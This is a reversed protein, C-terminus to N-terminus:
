GKEAIQTKLDDVEAKLEKIAEILVPIIKEHKVTLYEEDFPAPVAADPIVAQVEQAIVGTEHQMTPMFGKDECDDKWDFTVGRLKCVKDLANPITEINEKLREDSAYATVNGRFQWDNNSYANRATWSYTGSAVRFLAIYDAGAGTSVPNNDGNYEIGGGHNDDQSVMVMATAQSAGRAWIKATGTGSGRVSLTTSAGKNIDLNGTMTDDADSRVFSSAQLGDVTDADLGSGSGDNGSTWVTNGYSTITSNSNTLQLPYTGDWSGNDDRDTLIYFNNSNIHIWFDDADTDNFKMQPSTGSITLQGTMTDATDSRLFSSAQVGDVTDADLGSGSGDNGANWVTNGNVKVADNGANGPQFNIQTILATGGQGIYIVDSAKGILKRLYGGDKTYIYDGEDIVLPATATDTGANYSGGQLYLGSSSTDFTDGRLYGESIREVEVSQIVTEGGGQYNTIYYLDFYKGEPDFKTAHGSSTTNYGSFDASYTYVQGATLSQNAAVGYNYSNATDSALNSFNENLTQVAFYFKGSGSSTSIHKVRVTIRYTANPDIPLRCPIPGSTSGFSVGQHTASYGNNAGSILDSWDNNGLYFRGTTNFDPYKQGGATINRAVYLDGDTNLTMSRTTNKVFQLNGGSNTSLNDPSEYIKWINGGNWQIGENPGPDNFTLHNVNQINFNSMNLNANAPNRAFSSAHSGDVTDADLGSGSGDNGAHWITNGSLYLQGSTGGDLRVRYDETSGDSAHFDIYRGVEMVGQTNVAPIIGWRNGSSGEAQYGDLLDADLGSGSGDNAAHWVKYKNAGKSWGGVALDNTTGDLGFYLAYDGAIHFQMFADANATGQYVQLSAQNGSATAIASNSPFTIQNTYSSVSDHADSRLFSSAQIGDVTDADLGSGSGDNNSDWFKAWSYWSSGGWNTRYHVGNGNSGTHPVYYQFKMSGSYYNWLGGYGYSGPPANTWSAGNHIEKWNHHSSTVANSFITDWNTSTNIIGTYAGLQDADKGDLKDADLGSGSGDVTKIATLIQAATQDATAGTEIGNLKTHDADTFVNSDTASEVLTRIEAATQDATAGAEIGDLKTGDTAVDRGDVNGSVTIDGNVSIGTNSTDLKSFNSYYLSVAGNTVGRMMYTGNTSQVTLDNVKLRLDGTGVEHIYSHSGDHYIQLDSGAGFIAKNGDGFSLNGTLTGGALPLKTAISNTVTTSFNADDGLAAALENLTDLTSPASDVLNSVSTDVYTETAYTDNSDFKVVNGAYLRIRDTDFQIYTDNDGAHRIKNPIEVYDHALTMGIPLNLATDATVDASSLEFHMNAENSTADTNVEIRASQGNQEPTGNQHNFTVNANGYGDNITLAVGGSGKGSVLDGSTAYDGTGAGKGTLDDFTLGTLFSSAHVGDVTDADLGSGTGDNGAHWVTSGGYTLAGANTLTLKPYSSSGAVFSLDGNARYFTTSSAYTTVTTQYGSQSGAGSFQVTGNVHLANSPTNGSGLNVGVRGSSYDVMFVNDSYEGNVTLDGGDIIDGSDSVFSNLGAATLRNEAKDSSSFARATTGEQARTVTLTNGSRATVSVIEINSDIDELTMYFTDGGSLTPFVSGDTVSISTASSTINSALTTKGNNSFKVAM